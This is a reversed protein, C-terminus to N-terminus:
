FISVKQVFSQKSIGVSAIVGIERLFKCNSPESCWLDEVEKELCPKFINWVKRSTFGPPSFVDVITTRSLSQKFKEYVTNLDNILDLYPVLIMQASALLSAAETETDNM